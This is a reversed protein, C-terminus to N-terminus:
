KSRLLKADFCDRRAARDPAPLGSRRRRGCRMFVLMGLAAIAFCLLTLLAATM